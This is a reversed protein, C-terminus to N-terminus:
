QKQKARRRQPRSTYKSSLRRKTKTQKYRKYTKIVKKKGKYIRSNTSNTRTWNLKNTNRMLKYQGVKIVGMQMGKIIAQKMNDRTVIKIMDGAKDVEWVDISDIEKKKMKEFPTTVDIQVKHEQWGPKSYRRTHVIKVLQSITFTAM